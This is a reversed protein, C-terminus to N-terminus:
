ETVWHMRMGSMQMITIGQDDLARADWTLGEEDQLRLRAELIIQEGARCKRLFRMEGIELPIMSRREAPDTAAIQFASLQLLAEFLYPSYQYRVNRLHAFDDTERYSTRGRVVGPGAGEISEMVRYRGVLGSREEYWARVKKQDMPKTRLEDQRVPFDPLEEGLDAAGGALIVQGQYHPFFHDTLRGAPSIEQAAISVECLVGGLGTVARRCSIRASRPVDPPCQIMDMLRVQRVGRVQLHPYLIRAAEMLTELVMAASVLPYKIFTFPRHDTIWLDKELSFSRVAELEERRIDLSSISDILPFDGPHLSVTGGSLEGSLAPRTTDDLLATKLAPLNRMFMVRVDEAPSVFLERCFLGALEQAHIYGVGKRKLLERIEPDEAMGAGEIPPLMFAKFRIANNKRRLTGLLASLMRNAAAYNAQGPNGQIAAASSLGVFFRLGAGEAASFLNWAGLFKVDTVTTFDDPTMHRLFGDRLVGAGHIIGDIRGYRSAVEAMIARVAEPDTVDCTQYTAEIGSAHLDALTQAIEAARGNGSDLTTRGLFVLRPRFPVLSAALRASIGTAGGSMVIVDGPGLQLGPSDGFVSPVAQGETTLVRGDRHVTEVVPCGRDLAARLADHLDTDRGIEVTRFQVSPYEQAASLFLGLLGEALLPGFIESDERSHILVVFKKKPSQLFTKLLLFLGRLCRSVDAMSAMKGSGGHPLTIVMGALSTLASIREAAKGSGEDTLIDCAEEGSARNGQRFLLSCTEVGYDRRLIETASGVIRDDRDPSLLLVSEGPNLEVPVADQSEVTVQNFVIRKLSEEAGASKRTEEQVPGTQQQLGAGGERVVITSIREAIDRVTRAGIFDELEITIGFQSEAADMIIPLRSSRIALDKRLDMDPQIEEREYGTADMIIRILRELLSEGDAEGATAASPQEPISATAAPAGGQRAIIATIRGAIDRVTRADIFDELEITIGFQSEAADMIIPLRSSRIALDKRLDMDPQIEAREYGTADMIIRILRELLDQGEPAGGSAPAAPQPVSPTAASPPLASVQKQGEALGSGALMADIVGSLDGEQFAPNHERRIAELISPKLLQGFTEMVFRNVERQIIRELPAAAAVAPESPRLAPAPASRRAELAKGAAAFSVFRAAGGVKLQGQVYLQALATRYTLGEATPLCTQICTAEPLTDAILNSVIDGPGVEVFLRVGHDDWLTQVNDQWHVTSELHAMLIRRIEGPDSPYLAKTTNSLVPIQPPHFPITAVFADLEDHIVRMIPSHFAMSVRLLTSRYGLEKLRSGLNRVAESSGSLIVQNPSNINGIYIDGKGQILEKLLELPADVAAMVGPDINGAAVKDMCRARENVIRFGDEVSYVGALCLATLEGLSHGAMAVPHIGLSTLYRAMAHEMAFLAPQQWRTKQLNEEQDHFLLHLLDFDAAAAARDMWEKIVPFSEYLERGMGAYHAGQGPFVLALPPLPLEGSRVFIGQQALARVVKPSGIGDEALAASREIVTLAEEDSQATVALRCIRGDIETRFFSVGTIAPTPAGQKEGALGSTSVPSVMVSDVEGMAQEVQVVYNSGGFGFANVQLRRPEGARAPWDLPETPILLGSGELGMEPDPNQYNLTAPFIGAKMAMTGRILNSIGSAGLTHGIQSKISSLVTRKSPTFFTKLARVEEVDGQRTSTAHCEVLDVAEPGYPLGQFSARIALEQSASNPEVMGLTNNSAGMGTILADIRAGRARALSEREIVIMGGGEGLVMGDREADFPRSTEHAPRERGSMGYLAGVAAFELFHLHTLNDEGGGVIAADIVGNRIMQIASHLAVLSTACAASVAFSPGMFGYRNCIFGPAACNLRGLLTTDDPAMRGAKVEREVASAQEPSLHVARNVATVIDHAYARIIISTLTGAAEGSNQSIIVGIRERPIDSELIGSDRIAKDALWLTLKTADTMTRFDQPPIGLDSRSISFDLFAGVKCYTKDLLHPRSDYFISHDWRSPPVLTIGSKMALSAAWIEEPSTGLANVISMGTIAIREHTDQHPVLIGAGSGVGTERDPPAAASPEAFTGIEGVVPHHLSLPGEALERHFFRLNRVEGILGACAGSMFQGRELCTQEDLPVNGPRGKGRAAAFLSGAAMEEIKTRFSAEDQQGAAYERELALIAEVKPTSLSRVRLGTHQGSVVTGGPPSTLIMQQYLATLTGTEVIEPTTLYATGMQIADAGLMAAMFATERNFIGGALIMRCNRFLEPSRRKLDLVMQALTLTSHQGVHGGAEYGECIAYKVGAELALRLLAEDPAIYIVELGCELLEQIPSLDGGAIVVFRPRLKKIWALHMERCPNEALSIFNLAYPRTGMIEPLCGLRRDLTEADMMGLAITPLGGADAVRVAFEPVDTIWSMGGQLFPYKTGMEVAVPSDLFCDKKAEALRCANRIEDMFAKVAQETGAGFREAFSAAFAAEVGLPIVEDQGFRSELPHCSRAQVRNAFSHRSEERSEAGYLSDEFTMIEKFALSNGRNFLRCPVQLNVGILESSDLRLRALRQRQVDDIAVLDTLWHLSEFVIGSAGTALFAAAAEPTFVGGWILIDLSPSSASLQEKVTAYLAAGTESSVFGAAECGKLVIRGIGSPDEVIEALLDLDGTIPFLRHNESLERLRRLFGAPDGQFLAPHYEVWIDQVGNEKLVQGLSPDLFAPISLNIDRVQGAHDAKELFTRLDDMSMTSFDFVARSGTRQAMQLVAPTIEEPRWVFGIISNHHEAAIEFNQKLAM